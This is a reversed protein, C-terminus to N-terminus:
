VHLNHLSWAANWTQRCSSPYSSQPEDFTAVWLLHQHRPWGCQLMLLTLWSKLLSSSEHLCSCSARGVYTVPPYDVCQRFIRSDEYFSQLEAIIAEFELTTLVEMMLIKEDLIMLYSRAHREINQQFATSM